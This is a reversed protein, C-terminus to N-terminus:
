ASSTPEQVKAHRLLLSFSSTFTNLSRSSQKIASKKKGTPNILRVKYIQDALFSYKPQLRCITAFELDGSFKKAVDAFLNRDKNVEPYAALIATITADNCNCLIELFVSEDCGVYKAASAKYLREALDNVVTQEPVVNTEDRRFNCVESMWAAYDNKGMLGVSTTAKRIKEEMSEGFEEHYAVAADRLEQMSKTQLIEILMFDKTTLVGFCGHIQLATRKPAPMTRYSLFRGFDTLGGTFMGLLTKNEGQVVDLLTKKHTNQFIEGTLKIIEPRRGIIVAAMMKEDTGFGKASTYIDAADQKAIHFELAKSQAEEDYLVRKMDNLIQNMKFNCTDVYRRHAMVMGLEQEAGNIQGRLATIQEWLAVMPDVPVEPEVPASACIGM